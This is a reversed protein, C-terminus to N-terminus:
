QPTSDFIPADELLPLHRDRESLIPNDFPWQINIQPDDFRIGMEHQSSYEATCKYILHVEDTLAVFGHAFGPPVYLMHRNKASLEVAEWKLFNPSDKRIDVAVDWAVGRAVRVLKGQPVPPLQYHLGRLVRRYSISHNDQVFNDPIGSDAFDSAKYTEFFSGRDDPFVRPVILKLDPITLPTFMFPM